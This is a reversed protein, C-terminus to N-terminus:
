RKYYAQFGGGKFPHYPESALQININQQLNKLWLFKVGWILYRSNTVSYNNQIYM